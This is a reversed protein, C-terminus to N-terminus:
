SYSVTVVQGTGPVVLLGFSAPMNVPFNGLENPIISLTKSRATTSSSDYAYGLTTGASIVSVVALRGSSAKVVTPTSINPANLLGQVNMYDQTLTSIAIVLNKIATLIDSLSAGSQQPLHAPQPLAAM